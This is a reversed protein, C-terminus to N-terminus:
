PQTNPVIKSGPENSVGYSGRVGPRHFGLASDECDDIAPEDRAQSVGLGDTRDAMPETTQDPLDQVLPNPVFFTVGRDVIRQLLGTRALHNSFESVQKLGHM